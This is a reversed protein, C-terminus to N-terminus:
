AKRKKVEIIDEPQYRGACKSLDEARSTTKLSVKYQHINHGQGALGQQDGGGCGPREECHVPVFRSYKFCCAYDNVL